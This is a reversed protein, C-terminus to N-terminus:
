NEIESKKTFYVGFLCDVYSEHFEPTHPLSKLLLEIPFLVFLHLFFFYTLETVFILRM